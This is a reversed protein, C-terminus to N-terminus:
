KSAEVSNIACGMEHAILRSEALAPAFSGRGLGVIFGQQWRSEARTILSKSFGWKECFEIADAKRWFVELSCWTKNDLVKATNALFVASDDFAGKMRIANQGVQTCHITSPM